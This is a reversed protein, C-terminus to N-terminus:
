QFLVPNRNITERLADETSLGARIMNAFAELAPLSKGGDLTARMVTAALEFLEVDGDLAQSGLSAFLELVDAGQSYEDLGFSANFLMGLSGAFHPEPRTWENRPVSGQDASELQKRIKTPITATASERSYYPRSALAAADKSVKWMIFWMQAVSYRRLGHRVAGEIKEVAESGLDQGHVSCQYHLYRMADVVSYDLWLNTLAEADSFERHRLASFAEEGRGMVTDPPLFYRVLASKHWVEGDKLFYANFEAAAPDDVLVGRRYLRLIFDDAEMPTLEACDRMSFVGQLLKPGILAEIAQLILVSDDALDAYSVVTSKARTIIPALREELAVKHAAVRTEEEERQREQCDDCPRSSSQPFKKAESRGSIRMEDSCVHCSQNEDYARCFQRVYKALAGSQSVERFPLLDAVRELFVGEEDMAWYRKALEIEQQDQTLFELRVAM